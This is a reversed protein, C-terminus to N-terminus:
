QAPPDALGLDIQAGRGTSPSQDSGAALASADIVRRLMPDGTVTKAPLGLAIASKIHGRARDLRQADAWDPVALVQAILVHLRAVNPHDAHVSALDREIADLLPQDNLRWGKRDLHSLFRARARNYQAPRLNPDLALAAQAEAEAEALAVPDNLHDQIMGCARNNRVWAPGYGFEAIAKTYFPMAHSHRGRKSWAYGMLALSRGDPRLKHAREFDAFAANSDNKAIFQLGRAIFEDATAPVIAVPAQPAVAAVPSPDLTSAPLMAERGIAAGAVTAAAAAVALWGWRTRRGTLRELRSRLAEASPRRSPDPELCERILRCFRGPIGDGGFQPSHTLQRRLLDAAIEKLDHHIIPEYPVRGTLAEFVVAGFAYVDARDLPASEAPKGVLRRVREPAMYPLTGGYRRLSEGDEGALNFDILYPQGGPGLVINSPKLDGHTVGRAHLAALAGALRAAIRAVADVYTGRPTLLPPMADAPPLGAQATDIATLVTRATPPGAAPSEFAASVVDRLTAAGVYRLCLASFGSARRAWLVEAVHPHRVPGLTRAEGSATPSLKLVVPRDGTDPDTALYARAFAGRGLERVVTFGEFAEGPEPWRVEAQALLEPHDVLARHGRIVERVDSRFAPLNRCFTETNPTRGSEERQCYEEYALDVVLTRHRLLEPYDRLAGVVDAPTGSRWASKLADAVATPSAIPATLMPASM